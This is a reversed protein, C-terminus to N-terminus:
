IWGKFNATIPFKLFFKKIQQNSIESQSVTFLKSISKQMKDIFNINVTQISWGQFSLIISFISIGNDFLSQVLRKMWEEENESDLYYVDKGLLKLPDQKM